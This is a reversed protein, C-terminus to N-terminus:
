PVGRIKINNRRSLYELDAVKLRLQQIAELHEDQVEVVTNHATTAESLHQEIHQTREELFDIRTHLLNISASFEKHMDAQLSLLMAKLSHESAPNDSTAFAALSQTPLADDTPSCTM